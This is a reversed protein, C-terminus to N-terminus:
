EGTSTDYYINAPQTYEYRHVRILGKRPSGQPPPLAGRLSDPPPPVREDMIREGEQADVAAPIGDPTHIGRRQWRRQLRFECGYQLLPESGAASRFTVHM